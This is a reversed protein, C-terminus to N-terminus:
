MIEQLFCTNIIVQCFFLSSHQSFVGDLTPQIAQLKITCLEKCKLLCDFLNSIFPSFEITFSIYTFLLTKVICVMFFTPPLPPISVSTKSIPKSLLLTFKM